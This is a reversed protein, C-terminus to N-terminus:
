ENACDIVFLSATAPPLPTHAHLGTGAGFKIMGLLEAKTLKEMEDSSGLANRGTTVMADLYLKKQARMVIREEVTGEMVLRYVSVPRTQGLSYLVVAVVLLDACAAAPLLFHYATGIRHARDQAQLDVQPNRCLVGCSKSCVV